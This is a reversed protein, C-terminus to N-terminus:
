LSLALKIEIELTHSYEHRPVSSTGLTLYLINVLLNLFVNSIKWTIWLHIESPHFIKKPCKIVGKLGKVALSSIDQRSFKVM